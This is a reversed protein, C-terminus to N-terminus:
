GRFVLEHLNILVIFAFSLVAVIRLDLLSSKLFQFVDHISLLIMATASFQQQLFFQMLHLGFALCEEIGVGVEGLPYLLHM